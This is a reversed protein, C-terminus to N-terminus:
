DCKRKFYDFLLRVGVGTGGTGRYSDAKHLFASGAIDIHVYPYDTFEELFKGATISGAEAPGVNKMDAITSKILESYEDWFPFEVVREYTKDGSYKLQDFESKDANGMIVIGQQGIARAASGTLTACDIVLEPDYNSAYSLADALIMRGEADTNLVEVTKGNRMNIVDGPVYADQGPRNDTAPVLAIVHVPLKAKAIAYLANSMTAGGGMDSKMFDMSMSTPKLSVGGTDFVVGKGVLVYPKKNIPKSPKYEMISFTPDHMSGRNVALLGGMNEKEIQKKSLVKVTFGADKGMEKFEKSFQEADLYSLPENVLRRANFVADVVIQMENISEKSLEKSNIGIKSLSNVKKKADKTFYKLFQYNSLALSEAFALTWTPNKGCDIVDITKIKLSNLKCSLKNAATRYKETIIHCPKGDDKFYHVFVYRNLQNLQVPNVEDKIQKKIFKVEDASFDYLSFDTKDDALLILSNKKSLSSIKSLTM